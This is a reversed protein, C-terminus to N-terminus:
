FKLFLLSFLIELDGMVRSSKIDTAIRFVKIVATIVFLLM